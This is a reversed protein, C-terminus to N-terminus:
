NRVAMRKKRYKKGAKAKCEKCWRALGDKCSRDKYYDSKAKQQNCKLCLKKRVKRRNVQSNDDCTTNRQLREKSKHAPKNTAPLEDAQQKPHENVQKGKPTKHSSQKNAAVLNVIEREISVETHLNNDIEDQFQSIQELLTEIHSIAKKRKEQQIYDEPVHAFGDEGLGNCEKRNLENQASKAGTVSRIVSRKADVIRSAAQHLKQPGRGLKVAFSSWHTKLFSRKKHQATKGM